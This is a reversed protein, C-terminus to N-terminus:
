LSNDNRETLMDLVQAGREADTSGTLMDPFFLLKLVVFIVILKVIIILWLTRGVTM